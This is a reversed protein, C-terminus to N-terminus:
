KHVFFSTPPPFVEFIAQVDKTPNKTSMAGDVVLWVWWWGTKRKRRM